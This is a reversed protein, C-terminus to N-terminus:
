LLVRRSIEKIQRLIKKWRIIALSDAFSWAAKSPLNKAKLLDEPLMEEKIVV